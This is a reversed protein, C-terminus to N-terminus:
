EDRLEKVKAKAQEKNSFLYEGVERSTFAVYDDTGDRSLKYVCFDKYIDIEKVTWKCEEIDGNYSWINYVTDGVKCLLEVMVGAEIKNETM